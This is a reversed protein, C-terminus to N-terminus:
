HDQSGGEREAKERELHYEFAGLIEGERVEHCKLCSETALIPAIVRISIFGSEPLEVEELVVFEKEGNGLVTGM